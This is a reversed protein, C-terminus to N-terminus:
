KQDFNNSFIAQGFSGSGSGENLSAETSTTLQIDLLFQAKISLDFLM